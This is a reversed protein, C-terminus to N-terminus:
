GSPMGGSLGHKKWNPDSALDKYWLLQVEELAEPYANRHVGRLTCGMREYFRCAGVNTDQTEVKITTCGRSRAWREASEWLSRGVGRGRVRPDVRLDWVVALDTRDELMTVGPASWALVAGGIRAGELWASIIRWRAVDFRDALRDPRDEIFADYDKIWEPLAREKLEYGFGAPVVDVVSRVVFSIPIAGHAALSDCSGERLEVRM